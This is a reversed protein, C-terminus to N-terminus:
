RRAPFLNGASLEARGVKLKGLGNALKIGCTKLLNISDESLRGSKQVAIKLKQSSM